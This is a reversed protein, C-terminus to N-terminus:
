NLFSAKKIHLTNYYLDRDYDSENRNTRNKEEERNMDCCVFPLLVCVKNVLVMKSIIICAKRKIIFNEAKGM